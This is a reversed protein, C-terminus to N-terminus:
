SEPTELSFMKPYLTQKGQYVCFPLHQANMKLFDLMLPTSVNQFYIDLHGSNTM